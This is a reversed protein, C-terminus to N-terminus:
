SFRISSADNNLAVSLSSRSGQYGTSAGGFSTFDFHNAFCNSFLSTSTIRNNWNAALSIEQYDVDATTTTCGGNWGFLWLSGGLPNRNAWDYGIYVLTPIPIALGMHVTGSSSGSVAAGSFVGSAPDRPSLVQGAMPGLFYAKAQEFTAFCTLETSANVAALCHDGEDAASAQGAVLASGALALAAVCLGARVRATMSTM